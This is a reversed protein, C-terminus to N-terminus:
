DDKNVCTGNTIVATPNSSFNWGYYLAAIQYTTVEIPNSINEQVDACLASQVDISTAGYGLAMVTPELAALSNWETINLGGATCSIPGSDGNSSFSIAQTCEATKSPVTAPSLVAYSSSTSNTTTTSTTSSSSSALKNTKHDSSFLLYGSLFLGMIIVLVFAIEVPTFGWSNKKTRGMMRM